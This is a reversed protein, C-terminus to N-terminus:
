LFGYVPSDSFQKSLEASTHRKIKISHAADERRLFSAIRTEGFPNLV